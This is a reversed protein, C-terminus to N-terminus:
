TTSKVYDYLEDVSEKSVNKFWKGEPYCVINIGEKCQGLCSSRTVKVTDRDYENQLKSYIECRLEEAYPQNDSQAYQTCRSCVLIHKKLKPAEKNEKM